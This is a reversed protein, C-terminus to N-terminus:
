RKLVATHVVPIKEATAQEETVNKTPAAVEAVIELGCARYMDRIEDVSEFLVLHDPHALNAPVMVFMRGTEPVLARSMRQLFRAPQELHELLGSAIMAGYTDDPYETQVADGLRLEIRDAPIGRLNAMHGALKVSQPSVDIGLGRRRPGDALLSCLWLGHGVGMECCAADGTIAPAFHERFLRFQAYHHPFLACSVLHGVMYDFMYEDNCYVEQRVAEFGKAAASYAGHEEFSGQERLYEICFEAFSDVVDADTGGTERVLGHTVDMLWEANRHYADGGEATLRDVYSVITARLFPFDNRVTEVFRAFTPAVQESIPAALAASQSM